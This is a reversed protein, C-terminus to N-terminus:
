DSQFCESAGPRLLRLDHILDLQEKSNLNQPDVDRVDGKAEAEAESRLIWELSTARAVFVAGVEVDRGFAFRLNMYAVGPESRNGSSSRSENRKGHSIQRSFM